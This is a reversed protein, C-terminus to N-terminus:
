PNRETYILTKLCSSYSHCPFSLTMYVINCLTFWCGEPQSQIEALTEGLQRVFLSIIDLLLIIHNLTAQAGSNNHYVLKGQQTQAVRIPFTDSYDSPRENCVNHFTLCPYRSCEMKRHAVTCPKRACRFPVSGNNNMM